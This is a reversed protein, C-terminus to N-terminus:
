LKSNKFIMLLNPTKLHQYLKIWKLKKYKNQCNVKKLKFKKHKVKKKEEKTKM